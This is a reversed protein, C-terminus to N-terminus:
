RESAAGADPAKGARTASAPAGCEPCRGSRNGTLDYGCEACCGPRPPRTLRYYHFAVAAAVLLPVYLPIFFAWATPAHPWGLPGIAWNNWDALGPEYPAIFAPPDGSDDAVVVGISGGGIVLVAVGHPGFQILWRASISLLLALLLAAGLAIAFVAKRRRRTM